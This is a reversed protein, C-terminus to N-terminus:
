QNQQICTYKGNKAVLAIGATISIFEQRDTMMGLKGEDMVYDENLTREILDAVDYHSTPASLFYIVGKYLIACGIIETGKFTADEYIEVEYDM